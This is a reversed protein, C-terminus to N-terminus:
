LSLGEAKNQQVSTLILPNNESYTIEMKMDHLGGSGDTHKHTKYDGKIIIHSVLLVLTSHEQSVDPASCKRLTISDEKSHFRFPYGFM